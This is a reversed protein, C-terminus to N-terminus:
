SVRFLLNFVLVFFFVKLMAPVWFRRGDADIGFVTTFPQTRIKHWLWVHYACTILLGLPMLMVDMYYKRWEMKAERVRYLKYNTTQLKYKYWAEVYIHHYIYNSVDEPAHLILSNLSYLFFHM